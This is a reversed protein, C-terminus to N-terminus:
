KKNRKMYRVRAEIWQNRLNDDECMMMYTLAENDEDIFTLPTSCHPDVRKATHLVIPKYAKRTKSDVIALVVDSDPKVIPANAYEVIEEIDHYGFSASLCASFGSFTFRMEDCYARIEAHVLYPTGDRFTGNDITIKQSKLGYCDSDALDIRVTTTRKINIEKAIEYRDNLTRM